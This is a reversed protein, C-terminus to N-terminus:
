YTILCRGAAREPGATRIPQAYAFGASQLGKGLCPDLRSLAKTKRNGQCVPTGEPYKEAIFRPVTSGGSGTFRM